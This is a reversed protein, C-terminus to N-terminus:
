KCGNEKLKKQLTVAENLYGVAKDTQRPTLLATELNIEAAEAAIKDAECSAIKGKTKITDLAYYMSFTIIALIVVLATKRKESKREKEAAESAKKYGEEGEEENFISAPASTSEVLPEKGPLPPPPNQSVLPPRDPETKPATAAESSNGYLNNVEEDPINSFPNGEGPTKPKLATDPSIEEAAKKRCNECSGDASLTNDCISCVLIEVPKKDKDVDAM